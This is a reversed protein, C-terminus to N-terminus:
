VELYQKCCSHLFRQFIYVTPSLWLPGRFFRPFGMEKRLFRLRLCIQLGLVRLCLRLGPPGRPGGLYNAWDGGRTLDAESSPQVGQRILDAESSPQIGGRTLDAESSPHVGGRTLDAESSPQVGVRTLDAESSPEWLCM